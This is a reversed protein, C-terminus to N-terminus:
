GIGSRLVIILGAADGHDHQRLNVPDATVCALRHARALREIYPLSQAYRRNRQLVYDVGEAAEVSFAFLGGARLLRAVAAFVEALDGVYIFLDAALVLDLPQPRANLYHVVEDLVLEDYVQRRQAQHIMASSVDVGVLRAALRRFLRGV